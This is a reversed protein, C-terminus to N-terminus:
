HSFKPSPQKIFFIKPLLRLRSIKLFPGTLTTKMVSSKKQKIPTDMADESDPPSDFPHIAVSVYLTM